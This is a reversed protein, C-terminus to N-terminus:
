LLATRACANGVYCQAGGANRSYINAAMKDMLRYLIERGEFSLATTTEDVVLIETDDTVAIAIEMLKRDEFGYKNISDKGKIHSLEFRALIEDAASNMKKSNVFGFVSFLDEQGAFLNEAVTCNSITNAEQLIMSVGKSQAEVMSAPKWPQGKYFMEGSTAEQMGAAISTITSKGSGNEGILGHIQGRRVELDVDKLAVIPGFKKNMKKIELLLEEM